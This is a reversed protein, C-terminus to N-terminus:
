LPVCWVGWTLVDRPDRPTESSVTSSVLIQRSHKAHSDRTIPGPTQQYHPNSDIVKIPDFDDMLWHPSDLHLAGSFATGLEAFSHTQLHHLSLLRSCTPKWTSDDTLDLGAKTEIMSLLTGPWCLWNSMMRRESERVEQQDEAAQFIDVLCAVEDGSSSMWCFRIKKIM